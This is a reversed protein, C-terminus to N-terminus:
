VPCYHIDVRRMTGALHLMAPAFALARAYRKVNTIPREVKHWL